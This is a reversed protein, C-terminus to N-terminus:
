KTTAPDTKKSGCWLQKLRFGLCLNHNPYTADLAKHILHEMHAPDTDGHTGFIWGAPSVKAEQLPRLSIRTGIGNLHAQCNPVFLDKDSDFGLFISVFLPPYANHALWLGDLYPSLQSLTSGLTSGLKLVLSEDPFSQGFPFLSITSDVKHLEEMYNVLSQCYSAVM